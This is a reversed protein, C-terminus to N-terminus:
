SLRRAAVTCCVVLAVLAVIAPLGSKPTPSPTLPSLAADVVTSSGTNVQVSASYEQYGELSVTILYRGEAVDPLTLPTTGTFVTDLYVNAGAPTSSVSLEGNGPAPPATPLSVSVTSVTNESVATTLTQTLYGGLALSITHQGVPITSLILSGGSPTKGAPNGDITVLAGGPESSVYISGVGGSNLPSLTASITRTGAAPVPVESRWEYYGTHDILVTHSGAVLNNFTVPTTGRSLGDIYVSSGSPESLIILSGATAQPSPDSFGGPGSTAGSAPVLAIVLCLSVSLLRFVTKM